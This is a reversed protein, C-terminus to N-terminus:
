LALMWLTGDKKNTFFLKDEKNSLTLNIADISGENTTDIITSGNNTSTDIKVITDEFSVLGQYWRDPLKLTTITNPLACYLNINDKSWVCKEPLGYVDLPFSKNDVFLYLESGNNTNRNYLIRNGEGNALTTLGNIDGFIKTLAGTSINLAYVSGEINWSPKTTLFIVNKTVWQPLWETFDSSFVQKSTGTKMSLTLGTVTNGLEILYFVSEKDPSPTVISINEALFKGKEAGFTALYSQIKGTNELYRYLISNSGNGFIAEHVGPITSNSIKIVSEKDLYREYVHGTSREVYRVIEVTEKLVEKKEISMDQNENQTDVSAIERETTSLGIGSIAFDTIQTLKDEFIIIDETNETNIEEPIIEDVNEEIVDKQNSANFPFFSRFVGTKEEQGFQNQPTSKSQVFFYLAGGLLVIGILILVTKKM